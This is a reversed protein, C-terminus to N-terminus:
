KSLAPVNHYIYDGHEGTYLKNYEAFFAKRDTEKPWTANILETNKINSKELDSLSDFFFAEMFDRSDSGWAHRFPYYGKIHPNKKTIKDIFELRGKGQGNLAMHTKRVYVVMPNKTTPKFDITGEVSNYIEDSHMKTYNSNQREFFAARTKEDPWGKKVLEDSVDNSKLIDEWTKYVTVLLVETNSETYYHVLFESGIILDNKSTVKDFYEKETKEWDDQSDFNWHMTTVTIYVPKYDNQAYTSNSVQLVAFLAVLFTFKITKM